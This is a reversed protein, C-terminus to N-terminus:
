TLGRVCNVVAILGLSSGLALGLVDNSMRGEEGRPRFVRVMCAVMGVMTLACQSMTALVYEESHYDFLLRVGVLRLSLFCQLGLYAVTWRSMGMLVSKM